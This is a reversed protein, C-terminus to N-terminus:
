LVSSLGTPSAASKAGAAKAATAAAGYARRIDDPKSADQALGTAVIRRAPLRGLTSIVQTKGIKGTFSMDKLASWLAGDLANDVAADTAANVDTVAEDTANLDVATTNADTAADNGGCATLGLSAVAAITLAIKKM